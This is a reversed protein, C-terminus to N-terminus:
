RNREEVLATVVVGHEVGLDPVPALGAEVIRVVDVDQLTREWGVVRLEIDGLVSAGACDDRAAEHKRPRHFWALDLLAYVNVDDDQEHADGEFVAYALV